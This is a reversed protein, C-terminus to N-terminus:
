LDPGALQGLSRDYLIRGTWREMVEFGAKFPRGARVDPELVLTYSGQSTHSLPRETQFMELRVTIRKDELDSSERNLQM